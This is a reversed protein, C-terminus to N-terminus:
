QLCPSTMITVHHQRLPFTSKIWDLCYSLMGNVRVLITKTNMEFVWKKLITFRIDTIVESSSTKDGGELNRGVRSDDNGFIM